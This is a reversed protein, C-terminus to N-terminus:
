RRRVRAAMSLCLSFCHSMLCSGSAHLTSGPLGRDVVGGRFRVGDIDATFWYGLRFVFTSPGFISGVDGESSEDLSFPRGSPSFPAYEEAKADVDLRAAAAENAVPRGQPLRLASSTGKLGDEGTFVTRTTSDSSGSDRGVLGLGAGELDFGGVGFGERAFGDGLGFGAAPEAPGDEESAVSAPASSGLSSVSSSTARRRCWSNLQAGMRVDRERPAFGHACSTASSETCPWSGPMRGEHQAMYACDRVFVTGYPNM